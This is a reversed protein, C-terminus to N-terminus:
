RRTKSKLFPFNGSVRKAQFLKATLGKTQVFKCGMMGQLGVFLTM